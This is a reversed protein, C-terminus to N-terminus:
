LLQFPCREVSKQETVITERPVANWNWSVRYTIQRGCCVCAKAYEGSAISSQRWFSKVISIGAQQLLEFERVFCAQFTSRDDQKM